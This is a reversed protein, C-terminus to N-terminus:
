AALVDSAKRVTDSPFNESTLAHLLAPAFRRVIIVIKAYSKAVGKGRRKALSQFTQHGRRIPSVRHAPFGAMFPECM